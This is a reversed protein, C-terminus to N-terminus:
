KQSQILKMLLQSCFNISLDSEQSQLTIKAGKMQIKVFIKPPLFYDVRQELIKEVKGVQM